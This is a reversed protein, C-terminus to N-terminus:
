HFSIMHLEVLSWILDGKLWDMLIEIIDFYYLPICVIIFLHNLGHARVLPDGDIDSQQTIAAKPTGAAPAQGQTDYGVDEPRLRLLSPWEGSGSKMWPYTEIVWDAPDEWPARRGYLQLLILYIPNCHELNIFSMLYIPNCHDLNILSMLCIPIVISWMLLSMLYIPNCHDLNIWSMLYIPNCHDLNILSM